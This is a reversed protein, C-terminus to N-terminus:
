RLQDMSQSPIQFGTPRVRGSDFRGTPRIAAPTGLKIPLPFIVM